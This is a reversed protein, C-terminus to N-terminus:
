EAMERTLNGMRDYAELRYLFVEPWTRANEKKGWKRIECYLKYRFFDDTGDIQKLMTLALKDSTSVILGGLPV